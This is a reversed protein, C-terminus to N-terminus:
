SVQRYREHGARLGRSRDGRDAILLIPLNRTPEHSRAQSCLRLGDFAGLGLSIIMLDVNEECAMALAESPTRNLIVDHHPSLAKVMREFSSRRDDVLLVRGRDSADPGLTEVAEVM